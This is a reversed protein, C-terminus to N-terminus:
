NDQHADDSRGARGGSPHFSRVFASAQQLLLLLLPAPPARSYM